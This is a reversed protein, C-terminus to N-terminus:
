KNRLRYLSISPKNFLRFKIDSGIGSSIYMDTNDLKYYEDYYIKSYKDKIIGGIYPLKIKGNLSHGALILNFKSYDIYNIFDPEHLVLISYKYEINIDNYIKDITKKIHNNKSNSSIGVILIPELGDNYIFEYKDNLNIFGSYDIIAEWKKNTDNDGKIAFKDINSNISKLINKLDNIDKDNYKQKKDLLDGSLVVIDPKLINIEEVTKKLDEKKISSKYKIDSIQVIKFGYFSSPINSNIVNYEKTIYDKPEIFHGYFFICLSLFIIFVLFKVWARIRIHRGM